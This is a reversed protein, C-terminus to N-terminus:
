KKPQFIIEDKYVLNLQKRAIDEIYKRTKTYEKKDKIEDKRSNEKDIDKNVSALTQEAAAKEQALGVKSYSVIGCLILVVFAVMGLGKKTKKRRRM